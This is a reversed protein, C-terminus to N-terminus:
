GLARRRISPLCASAVFSKRVVRNEKAPIMASACLIAVASNKASQIAVTGHLERGGDIILYSMGKVQQTNEVLIITFMAQFSGTIIYYKRGFFLDRHFVQVRM